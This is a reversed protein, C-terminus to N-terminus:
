WSWEDCGDGFALFTCPRTPNGSHMIVAKFREPHRTALLAAMSAGASLGAVAIRARDVPYLRCVQEVAQDILAAKAYARGSRTDYWNWCGQANALHSQEPYLVLFRERTAVQNM